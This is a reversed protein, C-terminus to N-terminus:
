FILARSWHRSILLKVAPGTATATNVIFVQLWSRPRQTVPVYFYFLLGSLSGEMMVWIKWLSWLITGSRTCFRICRLHTSPVRHGDEGFVDMYSNWWMARWCRTLRYNDGWPKRFQNFCERHTNQSCMRNAATRPRRARIIGHPQM